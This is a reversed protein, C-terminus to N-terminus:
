AAEASTQALDGHGAIGSGQAIALAQAQMAQAYALAQGDPAGSSTYPSPAVQQLTQLWGQWIAEPDWWAACLSAYTKDFQLRTKAPFSKLIAQWGGLHGLAMLATRHSQPVPLKRPDFVEVDALPNPLAALSGVPGLNRLRFEVRTLANGNAAAPDQKAKDYVVLPIAKKAGLYLTRLKGGRCFIERARRRPLDWVWDTLAVGPLDVAVDIRSVRAFAWCAWPAGFVADLVERLHQLGGPTLADPNIDLRLDHHQKGKKPEVQLIYATKSSWILPSLSLPVKGAISLKYGGASTYSQGIGFQSQCTPDKVMALCSNFQGDKWQHPLELLLTLKDIKLKWNAHHSDSSAALSAPKM